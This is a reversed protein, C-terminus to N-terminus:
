VACWKSLLRLAPAPIHSVDYVFTAGATQMSKVSVNRAKNQFWDKVTIMAARIIQYPLDASVDNPLNYGAVYTVQFTYKGTGPLPHLNIGRTWGGYWEWGNESYIEGLEPEQITYTDSDVVVESKTIESVSVIPLVSVVLNVGGTGQLTEVYTQKAFTRECYEEIVRSADAILDTLISDQSDDRVNLEDRVAGLTVLERSAAPVSITLAM